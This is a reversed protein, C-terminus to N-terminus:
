HQVQNIAQMSPYRYFYIFARPSNNKYSSVIRYLVFIALPLEDRGEHRLETAEIKPPFGFSSDKEELFSLEEVASDAGRLLNETDRHDVEDDAVELDVAEDCCVARLERPSQSANSVCLLRCCTLM